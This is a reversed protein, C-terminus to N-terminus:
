KFGIQFDKFYDDKSDYLYFAFPIWWILDNTLILVISRLPWEGTFYLYGWGLPGLIKGLLGVAGILFGKDPRRAVELYLIGYIGVVMGLCAFIQPHNLLPMRTFRFFWQPDLASYAGWLLNYCGACLFTIQHFRYRKM